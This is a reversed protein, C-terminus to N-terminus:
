LHINPTFLDRWSEVISIRSNPKKTEQLLFQNASQQTSKRCAVCDLPIIVRHGLKALALSSSKVCSNSTVGMVVVFSQEKKNFKELLTHFNEMPTKNPNSSLSNDDMTTETNIEEFTILDDLISNKTKIVRYNFYEIPITCEQGHSTVCLNELGSTKFQKYEYQSQCCLQQVSYLDKLEAHNPLEDKCFKLCEIIKPPVQLIPEVDERGYTAVFISDKDDVFDRVIDITIFLYNRLPIKTEVAHIANEVQVESLM